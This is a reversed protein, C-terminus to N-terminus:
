LIEKPFPLDSKSSNTVAELEAVTEAFDLLTRYYGIRVGYLARQSDLLEMLGVKGARYAGQSSNFTSTAQPILSTQDIKLLTNQAEARASLTQVRAKLELQAQLQLQEANQRRALASSTLSTQQLPFWLPISAEVRFRSEATSAAGFQQQYMVRFDPLWSMRALHQEANMEQTFAAARLLSPSNQVSSLFKANKDVANLKPPSLEESPIILPPEDSVDSGLLSALEARAAAREQSNMIIEANARTEEVHAKMEDQQTVAGTARRAEANRAIERTTNLQAQLLSHIRDLSFVRFYAAILRKRIELQQSRLEARSGAARHKQAAGMALYKTPFQIDQSVMWMNMGFDREYGVMPDSLFYQSRTKEHEAEAMFTSAAIEHNASLAIELATSLSTEAASVPAIIFIAASLIFLAANM